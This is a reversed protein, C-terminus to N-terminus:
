VLYISPHYGTLVRLTSSLQRIVDPSDNIVYGSPLILKEIVPEKEEGNTYTMYRESQEEDMESGEAPLSPSKEMVISSQGVDVFEIHLLFLLLILYM